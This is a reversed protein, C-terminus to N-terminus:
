GATKTSSLAAAILEVPPAGGGTTYIRCSAEASPATGAVDRGNVLITPSGHGRVREPSAPNGIEHEVWSPALSVDAFARRLNSRAAEVNPCDIDYILDVTPM